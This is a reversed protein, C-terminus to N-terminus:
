SIQYFIQNFTGARKVKGRKLLDDLDRRITRKTIDPLKKIIDAVQAKQNEQLIKMIEQQRGSLSDDSKAPKPNTTQTKPNSSQPKTSTQLKNRAQRAPLRTDQNNTAMLQRYEKALILVNMDSLWGLDKAIQLYNELSTIHQGLKVADGNRAVAIDMIELALEKARNKLPDGDPLTDFVRYAAATIKVFDQSMPLLIRDFFVM